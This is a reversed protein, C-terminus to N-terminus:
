SNNFILKIVTGENIKSNLQVRMKHINAVNKVISLGLGTGGTLKSHSRDVRYFREFVRQHDSESIGIGSDKVLLYNENLEIYVTGSEVNYIISNDIINYIMDYILRKIGQIQVSEIDTIIKINKKTYKNELNNIIDVIIDNINVLEFKDYLNGEDMKSLKIIDSILNLLRMSEKNIKSAFFKTDEDKVLGQEIAESMGMISSLPTKLEHSVNASFEKRFKLNKEEQTIDELFVFIALDENKFSSVKATIRYINDNLFIRGKNSEGKLAKNIVERYNYDKFNDLYYENVNINFIKQATHNTSVVNGNKDLIIVAEKINETIHIIEENKEYLKQISKKLEKKQKALHLLLPSIEDYVNNKLPNDLDINYLPDVINQSLKKALLVSIIYILVLFILIPQSIGYFITIPTYQKSSIRLINEGINVASYLKTEIINNDKYKYGYGIKYNEKNEVIGVMKKNTNDFLIEGNSNLLTIEYDNNALTSLFNTGSYELSNKLILITGKQDRTQSDIYQKYNYFFILIMSLILSITSVIIISNAIKKIM